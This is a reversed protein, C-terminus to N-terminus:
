SEEQWEKLLDNIAELTEEKTQNGYLAWVGLQDQLARLAQADGDLDLIKLLAEAIGDEPRSYFPFVEFKMGQAHFFSHVKYIEREARRMEAIFPWMIEFTEILLTKM